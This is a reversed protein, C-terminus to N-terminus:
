FKSITFYYIVSYIYKLNNDIGIQLYVHGHLYPLHLKFSSRYHHYM